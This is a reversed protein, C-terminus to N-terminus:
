DWLGATDVIAIGEDAGQTWRSDMDSWFEDEAIAAQHKAAAAASEAPSAVWSWLRGIGSRSDAHDDSPAEEAPPPPIWHQSPTPEPTYHNPTPWHSPAPRPDAEFPISLYSWAGSALTSVLWTM